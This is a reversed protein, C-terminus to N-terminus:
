QNYFRVQQPASWHIGDQTSIRKYVPPGSNIVYYIHLTDGQLIPRIGLFPIYSENINGDLEPIVLEQWNVEDQSVFIHTKFPIFGDAERSHAIILKRESLQFGEVEVNNQNLFNRDTDFSFNAVEEMESIDDSGIFKQVGRVLRYTHNSNHNSQLLMLTGDSFFVWDNQSYDGSGSLSGEVVSSLVPNGGDEVQSLNNAISLGLNLGSNNVFGLLLSGDNLIKYLNKGSFNTISFTTRDSEDPRFARNDARYLSSGDTGFAFTYGEFYGLLNRLKFTGDIAIPNYQNVLQGQSYEQMDVTEPELTAAFCIIDECNIRNRFRNLSLFGSNTLAYSNDSFMQSYETFDYKGNSSNKKYGLGLPNNGEAIRFNLGDESKMIYYKGNFEDMPFDEELESFAGFFSIGDFYSVLATGYHFENKSITDFKINDIVVVFREMTPEPQFEYNLNDKNTNRELDLELSGIKITESAEVTYIDFTYKGLGNLRLISDSAFLQSYGFFHDDLDYVPVNDPINMPIRKRFAFQISTNQESEPVSSDLIKLQIEPIMEINGLSQLQALGLLTWFPNSSPDLDNESFSLCNGFILVSCMIIKFKMYYKM